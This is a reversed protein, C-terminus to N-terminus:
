QQYFLVKDKNKVVWMQMSQGDNGHKKYIGKVLKGVLECLDNKWKLVFKTITWKQKGDDRKNV